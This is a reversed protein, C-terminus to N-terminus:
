TIYHHIRISLKPLPNEENERWIQTIKSPKEFHFIVPCIMLFRGFILLRITKFANALITIWFWFRRTKHEFGNADSHFKLFCSNPNETLVLEMVLFLVGVNIDGLGVLLVKKKAIEQLSLFWVSVNSIVLRQSKIWLELRAFWLPNNQNM